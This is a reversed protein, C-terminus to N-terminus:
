RAPSAPGPVRKQYRALGERVQQHTAECSHLKVPVVAYLFPYGSPALELDGADFPPPECPGQPVSSSLASTM